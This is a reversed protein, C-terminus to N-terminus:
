FWAQVQVIYYTNLSRKVAAIISFTPLCDHCEVRKSQPHTGFKTHSQQSWGSDAFGTACLSINILEPLFRVRPFILMPPIFAGTASTCVVTTVNKGREDSTLASV